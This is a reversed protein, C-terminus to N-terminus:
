QLAPETSAAADLAIPQPQRDEVAAALTEAFRRALLERAFEREALERANAGMQATLSSDDRLRLLADALESPRQPDVFWGCEASEVLERTWGRSNVICPLGAALGDFLKNPSNTALIPIDLFSTISVDASSVIAGLRERPIRGTFTVLDSLGEDIVRTRLRAETGGDGCILIRIGREGREHLVAAADILYDLGNAIGMTGAHIAVFADTPVFPALTSRDRHTPGFLDLDSGNTIIDVREPAVGAEVVGDRMGPSLAIIRRANRYIWRELRRALWILPRGKLVRLQIPAEPWLDRVEFVLPAKTRRALLVGPIGITLPTSTAIVVDPAAPLDQARVRSARLTFRAFELLRRAMSMRNSYAGGLSIVQIGDVVQQRESTLGSGAREATIVTVSHGQAVLHRAFEYSRTGASGGRTAFYQHLYLVNM